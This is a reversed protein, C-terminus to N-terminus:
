NSKSQPYGRVYSQNTGRSPPCCEFYAYWVQGQATEPRKIKLATKLFGNEDLVIDYVALLRSNRTREYGREAKKAREDDNAYPTMRLYRRTFAPNATVIGGAPGSPYRDEDYLWTLMGRKKFEENCFRVTDLFRDGLYEEELGVRAHLHAGGMKMQHFAEIQRLMENRDLPGNWAWFPTGRDIAEPNQFQEPTLPSADNM